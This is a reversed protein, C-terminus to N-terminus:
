KGGTVKLYPSQEFAQDIWTMINEESIQNTVAHLGAVWVAKYADKGNEDKTTLSPDIATIIISGSDYKVTAGVPPYYVYWDDWGYWPYYGYYYWHQQAVIGTAVVLNVTPDKPDTVYTYGMTQMQQKIKAIISTDYKHDIKIPDSVKDSLDFLIENGASDTDTVMSYVRNKAYNYESSDLRHTVVTTYDDSHDFAEYTCGLGMNFSIFLIGPIIKKIINNQKMMSLKSIM